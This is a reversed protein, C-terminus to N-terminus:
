GDIVMLVVNVGTGAEKFSGAPLDEWHTAMDQFAERQRPGNACLAVLRGGPKLFTLAHRIHKIDLGRDFPPNMIIKPYQGQHDTVELFDRHKVCVRYSPFSKSLIGCLTSNCEYTLVETDVNKVIPKILAGTGGSPELVCEGAQVDAFKFMREAINEPTPFFRPINSFQLGEIDRKLGAEQKQEKTEPTLLAWLAASEPTDAYPKGNGVVYSHYGNPVQTRGEGVNDYVDKKTRVWTLNDPITEMDALAYLVTQTRQLRAGEFRANNAQALRKPTNTLRDAFKADIQPQLKDALARFKDGSDNTRVASLEGSDNTRVASLEGSDNTRVAPRSGKELFLAFAMNKATHKNYWFKGIRNWRWKNAKLKDRTEASPKSPFRIEIGKKERNVSVTSVTGSDNVATPPAPTRSEWFNGHYGTLMQYVATTCSDNGIRQHTLDSYKEPYEEDHSWYKLTYEWAKQKLEDSFHNEIQVYKAQPGDFDRNKTGQCDTMSDFTGYEYKDLDADLQKKVEPPLDTVYVDVASGMSFNRSKVRAKIGKAKLYARIEKAALAAQTIARAM